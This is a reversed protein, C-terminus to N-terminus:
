YNDFTIDTSTNQDLIVRRAAPLFLTDFIVNSM